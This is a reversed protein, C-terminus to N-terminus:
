ASLYTARSSATAAAMEALLFGIGQHEIIRRGFTERTKAYETSLDLAAQSLGTAVASIGLRGADLAALAIPLGQGEKGILNDASVRVDDFNVTSTRSAMLGMKREPREASLGATDAPVHFCSIGRGGTGTRAMVTYFDAAGGHTTWAKAGRIIY